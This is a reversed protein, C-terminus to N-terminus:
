LVFLKNSSLTIHRYNNNYTKGLSYNLRPIGCMAKNRSKCLIKKKVKENYYDYTTSCYYIKHNLKIKFKTLTIM